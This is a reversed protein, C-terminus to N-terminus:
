EKKLNKLKKWILIYLLANAHRKYEYSFLPEAWGYLSKQTDNKRCKPVQDLQHPGQIYVTRPHRTYGLEPPAAWHILANTVPSRAYIQPADAQL